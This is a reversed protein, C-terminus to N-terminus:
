LGISSLYKEVASPDYAHSIADEKSIIGNQVLKELHRSLPQHGDSMGTEIANHILSLKGEKITQKIANTGILVECALTRGEENKNPVLTQSVVCNLVTSFVGYAWDKEDPPFFSGVRDVTKAASNTHLTSLVLHGTEAAALAIRMTELDRIEGVMIVDPDQRMAARLAALFSPSDTGIEKRTIKSQDPTIIYEVPDEITLIHKQTTRNIHDLMSALTTSKGSGTPGTVLVLGTARDIERGVSPPLNLSELVPITEDLRRMVLSLSGGNALSLNCRCRATGVETTFELGSRDPHDKNADRLTKEPTDKLLKPHIKALFARMASDDVVEEKKHKTLVDSVRYRMVDGTTVHIDSDWQNKLAECCLEYLYSM